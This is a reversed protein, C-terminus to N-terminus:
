SRRFAFWHVYGPSAESTCLASADAGVDGEYRSFHPTHPLESGETTGNVVQGKTSVLQGFRIDIM